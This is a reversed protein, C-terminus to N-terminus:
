KYKKVYIRNGEVKYVIVKQNEEIMQSGSLVEVDDGLIEARGVPRLSTTTVGKQSLYKSYDISTTQYGHNKDLQEKLVLNQGIKLKVGSKILCLAVVISLVGAILFTSLTHIPTDNSLYIGIFTMVSGALGLIGFSPILAELVLLIFGLLLVFFYIWQGSSIIFFYGFFSIFSITGSIISFKTFLLSLLSIFGVSLLLIDM